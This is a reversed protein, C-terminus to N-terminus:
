ENQISVLSEIIIHNAMQSAADEIEEMTLKKDKNNDDLDNKNMNVFVLKPEKHTKNNPVNDNKNSNNGNSKKKGMIEFKDDKMFISEVFGFKIKKRKPKRELVLNNNEVTPIYKNGSDMWSINQNAMGSLLNDANSIHSNNNSGYNNNQKLQNIVNVLEKVKTEYQKSNEKFLNIKNNLDSNINQLEEVTKQEDNIKKDLRDIKNDANLIEISNKLKNGIIENEKVANIEEEKDILIKEIEQAQSVLGNFAALTSEIFSKSEGVDKEDNEYDYMNKKNQNNKIGSINSYSRNNNIDRQKINLKRDKQLNLALKKKNGINNILNIPIKYKLNKKEMKIKSPKKITNLLNKKNITFKINENNNKTSFSKVNHSHSLSNNKNSNSIEINRSKKNKSGVFGMNKSKHWVIQSLNMQNNDADNINNNSKIQILRKLHLSTNFKGSNGTNYDFSDVNRSNIYNKKEQTNKEPQVNTYHSKELPNLNHVINPLDSKLININNYSISEQNNILLNEIEPKGKLNFNKFHSVIPVVESIRRSKKKKPKSSGKIELKTTKDNGSNDM